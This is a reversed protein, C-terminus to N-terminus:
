STDMDQAVGEQVKEKGQPKERINQVLDQVVHLEKAPAAEGAEAPAGGGAAATQQAQQQNSWQLAQTQAANAVAANHMAVEWEKLMAAVLGGMEKVGPVIVPQSIEGLPRQCGQLCTCNTPRNAIPVIHQGRRQKSAAYTNGGGRSEHQLM